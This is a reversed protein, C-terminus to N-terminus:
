LHEVLANFARGLETEPDALDFVIDFHNRGAIEMLEVDRGSDRLRDAFVASQAKFAPTEIEGVALLTPVPPWSREVFVPSVARASPADLHLPENVYTEVLPTLDFVGSLLIVGAVVTEPLGFDDSWNSLAVMAALHAGASSGSIILRPTRGTHGLLYRYLAAVASRVEAIIDSVSAEPALTYGVAAYAHGAALVDAAPFSASSRDLEQWYGGHIFVLVVDDVFDAAFYDIKQREGSGYSLTIPPVDGRVRESEAYYHQILPGIDDVMSSPSYDIELPTPM